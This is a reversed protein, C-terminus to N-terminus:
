ITCQGFEESNRVKLYHSLQFFYAVVSMQMSDPNKWGPVADISQWKRLEVMEKLSSADRPGRYQRFEGNKVSFLFVCDSDIYISYLTCWDSWM